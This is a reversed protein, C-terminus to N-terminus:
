WPNACNLNFKRNVQGTVYRITNPQNVEALLYLRCVTTQHKVFWVMTNTVFRSIGKKATMKSAAYINMFHKLCVCALAIGKDSLILWATFKIKNMKEWFMAIIAPMTLLWRAPPTHSINNVDAENMVKSLSANHVVAM